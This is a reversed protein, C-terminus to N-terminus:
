ELFESHHDNPQTSFKESPHKQQFKWFFLNHCHFFAGMMGAPPPFTPFGEMIDYLTVWPCYPLRCTRCVLDDPKPEILALSPLDCYWYLHLLYWFGGCWDQFSTVSISWPILLEVDLIFLVEGSTVNEFRSTLKSLFITQRCTRPIIPRPALVSKIKFFM